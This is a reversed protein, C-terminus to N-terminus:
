QRRSVMGVHEDTSVVPKDTQACGGPLDDTTPDGFTLLVPLGV